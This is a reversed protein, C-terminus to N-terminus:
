KFSWFYVLNGLNPDVSILYIVVLACSCHLVASFKWTARKAAKALLIQLKDRHFFVDRSAVEMERMAEDLFVYSRILSRLNIVSGALYVFSVIVKEKMSLQPKITLLWGVIAMSFTIYFQWYGHIWDTLKAVISFLHPMDSDSITAKNATM